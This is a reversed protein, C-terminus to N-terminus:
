GCGAGNRLADFSERIPLLLKALEAANFLETLAMVRSFATYDKQYKRKVSKGM